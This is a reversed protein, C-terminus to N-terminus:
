KTKIWFLHALETWTLIWEDHFWSKWWANSGGLAVSLPAPRM